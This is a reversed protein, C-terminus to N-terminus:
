VIPQSDAPRLDAAAGCGLRAKCGACPLCLARVPIRQWCACALCPLEGTLGQVLLYPRLDGRGAAESAQWAAVSGAAALLLPALLAAGAGPRRRQAVSACLLSAFTLAMGLRDWALTANTPNLHYYASGAAAACPPPPPFSHPIPGAADSVCNCWCPPSLLVPWLRVGAAHGFLAGVTRKGSLMGLFTAAWCASEAASMRGGAGGRSHRLALLGAVGPVAIAANSLVNPAHPVGLLSRHDGAFQHYSQPQPIRPLAWAAAAAAAACGAEAALRVSVPRSAWQRRRQM